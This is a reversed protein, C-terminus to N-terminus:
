GEGTRTWVKQPYSHACGLQLFAKIWSQLCLFGRQRNKLCLLSKGWVGMDQSQSEKAEDSTCNTSLSLANLTRSPLIYTIRAANRPQFGSIWMGGTTSRKFGSRDTLFKESNQRGFHRRTGKEM